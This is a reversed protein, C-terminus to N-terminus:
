DPTGSVGTRNLPAALILGVGLWRIVPWGLLPPAITWRSLLFPVYGVVTGPVLLVFVATGLAPWWVPDRSRPSQPM